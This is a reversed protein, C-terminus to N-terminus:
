KRGSQRGMVTIGDVGFDHRSFGLLRLKEDHRVRAM